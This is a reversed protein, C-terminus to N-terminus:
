EEAQLEARLREDQQKDFDALAAIMASDGNDSLLTWLAKNENDLRVTFKAMHKSLNIITNCTKVASGYAKIGIVVSVILAGGMLLQTIIPRYAELQSFLDM